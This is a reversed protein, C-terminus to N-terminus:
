TRSKGSRSAIDDMRKQESRAEAARGDAKLKEDLSEFGRVRRHGALWDGKRLDQAAATRATREQQERRLEDLGHMFRRWNKLQAGSVGTEAASSLQDRYEVRLADLNGLQAAEREHAAQAARLKKVLTQERARYLKLLSTFRKIREANKM